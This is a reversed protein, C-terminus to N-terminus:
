SDSHLLAKIQEKTLTAGESFHQQFVTVGLEKQLEILDLERQQRELPILTNKLLSFYRDAAGYFRTAKVFAGQKLALSACAELPYAMNVRDGMKIAHSFSEGLLKEAQLLNGQWLTGKGQWFLGMYVLPWYRIEEGIMQATKWHEQAQAINGFSYEIEGLGILAFGKTSLDPAEQVFALVGQFTHEAGSLDGGSLQIDGKRILSMLYQRHDDTDRSVTLAEDIARIAQAYDGMTWGITAKTHLDTATFRRNGVARFCNLSEELWQAAQPYDGETFALQSLIQLTFAIGDTDGIERKLSLVKLYTKKVEDPADQQHALLALSESLGFRDNLDKFLQLAQTMLLDARAHDRTRRVVSAIWRSAYALGSQGQMGLSQYISLSEELYPLAQRANEHQSILAGLALLAKARTTRAESGASPEPLPVANLIGQRLWQIGEGALGRIHWFWMLASSLRLESEVDKELLWELALRLNDLESELHNLWTVQERTRLYPESTEALHLSYRAHRERVIESERYEFLKEHAYQRITEMMRYRLDDGCADDRFVLSKDVLQSLLDFVEAQSVEEAPSIATSDKLASSCVEEAGELTWSSSFVSLRRLLIREKPSLLEYSWDILARLTQHRPLAARSGGSLLRFADDLRKAIQIPNLLRVRAAALEIALPIGDLRNVIQAVWPANEETLRFDPMAIQAREVFLRVAEFNALDALAPPHHLDPISLSPVRFAVEGGIGLIERSSTLIILDTCARLLTDALRACAEVLHECNDLIVLMKKTRMLAILSNILPKEPVERINLVAAVMKPVLDPDAVAALEVFWCGDPFQNLLDAAIHLSLRTKGTGGPGTLTVLRTERRSFLQHLEGMEKERGIFSTLQLPLNNPLTDLTKLPPFDTILGPAVVQYIHESRVLDKLYHVGLDLLHTEGPLQDEVLDAAAQSLLIQGGYGAALLRAVRNLVPGVYDDGREETVGTHLAMRVRIPTEGWTQVSLGRQIQIAAQLAASATSFAAQFADGVMKYPYGGYAEIGQRLIHEQRPFAAQMQEPYTEWMHTSGEIDTFLFTVTGSPRM